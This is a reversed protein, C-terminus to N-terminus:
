RPGDANKQSREVLEQAIDRLKVNTTQSARKLMEFAGDETVGEQAMLIGKAEGIVERTKLAEQLHETLKLATALTQQNAVAVWAQTAFLGGLLDDTESFASKDKSYMNLAGHITDRENLPSSLVSKLGTKQAQEAFAPWREDEPINDSRQTKGKELADLCPGEGSGYQHRDVELVWGDSAGATVPKGDEVITMGAADCGRIAQVALSSISRLSEDLSGEPELLTSLQRMTSLTEETLILEV